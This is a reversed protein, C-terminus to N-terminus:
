DALLAACLDAVVSADGGFYDSLDTPGAQFELDGGPDVRAIGAELLVAGRGPVTMSLVGHGSWASSSLDGPITFVDWDTNHQKYNIETGNLPNTFMTGAFDHVRVRRVLNGDSDYYRTARLDLTASDLVEFAGPGTGCWIGTPELAYADSTTARCITGGGTATCTYIDPPEPNLPGLAPRGASVPVAILLAALVAVVATAPRRVLPARPMSFM